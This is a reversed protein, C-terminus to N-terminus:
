GVRKQRLGRILQALFFILFETKDVVTQSGAGAGRDYELCFASYTAMRLIKM